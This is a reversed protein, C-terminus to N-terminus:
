PLQLSKVELYEELGWRGLERGRGSQKFGGFPAFPNFGGAGCVDVQGTRLRRAVRGARERDGGFVAGHLGYPSDNAIAVAEDDGDFPIISLVPGFIEDTAITMHNSVDAFVTPRVYYGRDLGEPPAVGGTVLTAGEDIGAQIYRRVRDRHAEDALPGLDTRSDFPDGVQLQEAVKGAILAATDHRPRPVLLRSWAMCTQGSNLFSQRVTAAVAEDLDADDLIISASKGGLELTVRKLGEAALRAVRRGTPTSGTFSVVDVGLHAVLHEGVVPGWGTVLNFVGPPLGAEDIAEALVFASLPAVESPKLVVTCGASLAPAVKSVAQFLPYNWPTVAAVVGAPEHVVTSAGAREEFTYARLTEAASTVIASPLAAQVVTSTMLPMGVERTVLAAVGAVRAMIGAALRDLAAAREEVPTAAWRGAAEQAAAVARDVDAATGSPVRGLVDETAAETVDITGDGAPEVWAGGIYLRDRDTM